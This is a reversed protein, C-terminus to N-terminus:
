LRLRQMQGFMAVGEIAAFPVLRFGTAGGIRDIGAGTFRETRDRFTAGVIDARRHARGLRCGRRPAVRRREFPRSQEFADGIDQALVGFLQRHDVGGIAAVGIGFHHAVRRDGRRLNFEVSAEDGLHFARRDWHAGPTPFKDTRSGRPTTPRMMGNLWGNMNQAPFAPAGRAAPLVTTIFGGSCAGSDESRRASSVSPMNGGPTNLITGPPLSAPEASAECLSTAIIASIPETGVPRATIFAADSVSLATISSSPPFFASIAKGSASGSSTASPTMPPMFKVQHPCDHPEVLRAKM